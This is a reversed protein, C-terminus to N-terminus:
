VGRNAKRSKRAVKNAARSKVKTVWPRVMTTHYGWFPAPRSFLVDAESVHGRQPGVRWHKSPTISKVKKSM